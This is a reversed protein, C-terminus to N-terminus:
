GNIIISPMSTRGTWLAPEARMAKGLQNLSKLEVVLLTTDGHHEELLQKAALCWPCDEFSYLVITAQSIHKQILLQAQESNSGQAAEV